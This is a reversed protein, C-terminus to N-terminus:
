SRTSHVFAVLLVCCLYCWTRSDLVIVFIISQGSYELVVPEYSATNRKSGGPARCRDVSDTAAWGSMIRFTIFADANDEGGGFTTDLNVLTAVRVVNIADQVLAHGTSNRACGYCSMEKCDCKNSIRGTTAPFPLWSAHLPPEPRGHPPIAVTFSDLVAPCSDPTRLVVYASFRTFHVGRNLSVDITYNGAYRTASGQLAVMPTISTLATDKSGLGISKRFSQGSAVHIWTIVTDDVHAWDAVPSGRLLGSGNVVVATEGDVTGAGSFSITGLTPPYYLGYSVRRSGALVRQGGGLALRVEISGACDYCLPPRCSFSGVFRRLEGVTVRPEIEAFPRTALWRFGGSAVGTAAGRSTAGVFVFFGSGSALQLGSDIQPDGELEHFAGNQARLRQHLSQSAYVQHSIGIESLATSVTSCNPVGAASGLCVQRSGDAGCSFGWSFLPSLLVNGSLTENLTESPASFLASKSPSIYMFVDGCTSGFRVVGEVTLPLRAAMNGSGVSGRMSPAEAAARPPLDRPVCQLGDSGYRYEFLRSRVWSLRDYSAFDDFWTFVRSADSLSRLESDGFDVFVSTNWLGLLTAKIWLVTANSNCTAADMWHALETTGASSVQRVRVDACDHRMFRARIWAMTDVLVRFAYSELSTPAINQVIVQVRYKTSHAHVKESWGGTHSYVCVAEDTSVLGTGSVVLEASAPASAIGFPPIISDVTYPGYFTFSIGDSWRRSSTSGTEIQFMLLVDGAIMTSPTVCRATTVNVLACYTRLEWCGNKGWDWELPGGNGSLCDAPCERSTEPVECIGDGCVAMCTSRCDAPCSVCSESIGCKGDGCHNLLETNQYEDPESCDTIARPILSCGSFRQELNVVDYPSAMNRETTCKWAADEMVNLCDAACTYDNEVCDCVNDGCRTWPVPGDCKPTTYSVTIHGTDFFIGTVTFETSGELPGSRPYLATVVPRDYFSYTARSENSYSYDQNNLSVVVRVDRRGVAVSSTTFILATDNLRAASNDSAPSDLFRVRILQSAYFTGGMLVATTSGYVPGFSPSVVHVRPHRYYFYLVAPTFQQGNPAVRVGVYDGDFDHAPSACVLVSSAAGSGVHVIHGCVTRHAGFLVVVVDGTSVFSGTIVVQSGELPGLPPSLAFVEPVAYYEFSVNSRSYLGVENDWPTDIVIRVTVNGRQRFAPSFCDIRRNSQFSCNLTVVQESGSGFAVAIFGTDYFTGRLSVRTAGSVPGSRPM